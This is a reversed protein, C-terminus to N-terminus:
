HWPDASPIVSSACEHGDGDLGKLLFARVRREPNDVDFPSIRARVVDDNGDLSCTDTVGVDVRDAVLPTVRMEREGDTVLDGTDDLGDTGLHRLVLGAVPHTDPTQDIGAAVTLLARCSLLLGTEVPGHSCVVGTVDVAGDGLAPVALLDDDVLPEDTADGVGQAEHRCSRQQAGPDGGIRGNGSPVHARTVLDGNQTKTAQSVHANLDRRRLPSLDGNQRAAQTLSVKGLLESGRAGQRGAVLIEETVM